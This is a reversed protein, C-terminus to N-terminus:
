ILGGSEALSIYIEESWESHWKIEKRIIWGSSYHSSSKLFYGSGGSYNERHEYQENKEALHKTQEIKCAFKRMESFVNRTHISYGLVIRKATRVNFYDTQLECDDIEQEAVILAKAEPPIELAIGKGIQIKSLRKDKVGDLMVKGEGEEFRIFQDLEHVEEGIEEGPRLSMVVLQSNKATYLVHRYDKNKKTAEEINTIYGKM